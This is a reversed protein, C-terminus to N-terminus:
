PSRRHARRRDPRHEGRGLRLHGPRARDDPAVPLADRGRAPAPLRGGDQRRRGRPAAVPAAAAEVVAAVEAGGDLLENALQLNLPGNGAILVRKGPLRRATRWLTQAAGTTMVGPLTWGPVPVGREYAGTAVILRQPRLRLTRGGLSAALELPDFAGWVLVDSHIKVGLSRALDILRAGEQHQRDAPAGGAVGLQKFYQGGPQSREDVVVVEAGARRAAIAASLGGPGAGIVLIEPESVPIDDITAPPKPRPKARRDEVNRRVAMGAAVKTMCARQNPRGDVEVLCEQCVGMGCFMGREAGSRTQRLTLVGNGALAAAVSEGPRASLPAGEFTITVDSM